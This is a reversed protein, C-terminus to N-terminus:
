RGPRDSQKLPSSRESRALTSMRQPWIRASGTGDGGVSVGGGAAILGGATTSEDTELALSFSAATTAPHPPMLAERATM